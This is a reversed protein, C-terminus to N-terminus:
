YMASKFRKIGNYGPFHLSCDSFFLFLFKFSKKQRNDGEKREFTLTEHGSTRTRLTEDLGLATFSRVVTILEPGCYAPTNTM